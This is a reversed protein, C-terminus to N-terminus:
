WPKSASPPGINPEIAQEQTAAHVQSTARLRPQLAGVERGSVDPMEGDRVEGKPM